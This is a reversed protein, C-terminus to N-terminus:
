YRINKLPRYLDNPDIQFYVANKEILVLKAQLHSITAQLQRITEDKKELREQLARARSPPLGQVHDGITRGTVQTVQAKFYEDLKYKYFTTPGLSIARAVQRMNMNILDDVNDAMEEILKDIARRGQEDARKRGM